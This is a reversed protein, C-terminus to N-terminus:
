HLFSTTDINQFISSNGFSWYGTLVGTDLLMKKDSQSIAYFMVDKDNVNMDEYVTTNYIEELFCSSKGSLHMWTRQLNPLDIALAAAAEVEMASKSGPSQPIDFSPKKRGKKM